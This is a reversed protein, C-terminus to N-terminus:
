DKELKCPGEVFGKVKPDGCANCGNSYTKTKGEAQYGCAPRYDTTCMQPRESPCETLAVQEPNQACSSFSLAVFAILLTIPLANKIM